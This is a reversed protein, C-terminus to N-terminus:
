VAETTAEKSFQSQYLQAYVGNQKLLSEHNGTEVINGNKMVIIKDANKITSLRHAIVFSTRGQTLRDMADQILQETRTDVSSTAEDLILMPANEVMARTITLLQKEGASLSTDETILMDFGGSQSKILHYTNSAKAAEVIEEMTAEPRAFKLNELLTGEFLWTDQLVMGFCERLNGRSVDTINIGDIYIAGKNLEYFRMLLNVLTTKGAGTPGVIAVKEGAKVEFSFDHIIEKNKTYGFSVHEFTVNGQVNTLTRTVTEPAEEPEELFEFVREAAAVTSQLTNTISGIQRLPQNYQRSYIVFSTITGLGIVGQLVLIGGVVAIGIYGLDGIFGLLPMMLGSLFQSKFTSTYLAKNHTNFQEQSRKEGNFARVINHASYMEEIHGNVTGLTEVQQKFYKQSSKIIIGMVILSLPIIIITILALQWSVIFMMVTIGILTIFSTVMNILSTSISQSVTDVDNTVRSLLDGFSTRDFYNLPLRNIKETIDTRMQKSLKQATTTMMFNQTTNFLFALVYMAVLIVGIELVKNLPVSTGSAVADQAMNTIEGLISPAIVTLVSSLIAFILSFIISWKFPKLANLLKASSAKFNKAKEGVMAVGGPGGGPGRHQKHVNTNSM